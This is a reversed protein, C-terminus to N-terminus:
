RHRRKQGANLRASAAIEIPVTPKMTRTMEANGVHVQRRWRRAGVVAWTIRSIEADGPPPDIGVLHKEANADVEANEHDGGDRLRRADRGQAHAKARERERDDAQDARFHIVQENVVREIKAPVGTLIHPLGFIAQADEAREERHSGTRERDRAQEVNGRVDEPIEQAGANERAAEPHPEAAREIATAAAPFRAAPAVHAQV